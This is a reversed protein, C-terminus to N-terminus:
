EDSQELERKATSSEWGFSVDQPRADDDYGDIFGERYAVEVLVELTNIRQQQQDYQALHEAADAAIDGHTDDYEWSSDISELFERFRMKM